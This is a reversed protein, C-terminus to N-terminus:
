SSAPHGAHGRWEARTNPASESVTVAENSADVVSSMSEAPREALAMASRHPFGVTLTLAAIGLSKLRDWLSGGCTAHAQIFRQPNVFGVATLAKKMRRYGMGRETTGFDRRAQASGPSYEHFWDPEVLLIKGGPRLVDFCHRLVAREDPCHHLADFILVTDFGPEFPLRRNMDLERFDIELGLRSANERALALMDPAVDAATVRCGRGALFISTWGPGCGLDLVRHGIGQRNFVETVAAWTHLFWDSTFGKSLLHHKFHPGHKELAREVFEIENRITGQM